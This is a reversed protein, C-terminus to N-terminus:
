GAFLWVVDLHQLYRHCFLTSPLCSSGTVWECVYMLQIDSLM